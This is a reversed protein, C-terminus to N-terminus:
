TQVDTVGIDNASFLYCFFLSSGFSTTNAFFYDISYSRWCMRCNISQFYWNLNILTHWISKTLLEEFCFGNPLVSRLQLRSRIECIQLVFVWLLLSFYLSTKSRFPPLDYNLCSVITEWWVCPNRTGSIELKMDPRDGPRWGQRLRFLDLKKKSLYTSEMKDIWRYSSAWAM